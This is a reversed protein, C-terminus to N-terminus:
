SYLGEFVEWFTPFSKAVCIEDLIVVGPAALGAVAFSMAIRHDDYTEIRAGHPRGGQIILSDAGARAEIGMRTLGDAMAALRDSEKARLHAVNSIVTTGEAFAATVALTPVMDPIDGMDARIASLRDPGTVRIGTREREVRCGMDALLDVIKLDGQRSDPGLGAVTVTGGTVAASAWFYSANSADPEVHYDGPRYTRGGSVSFRTYGNRVISVGLRDMVEVTLDIYPRSVPGRTVEIEVGDATYPAILLLASLFQSSVGCDLAVRGGKPGAVPPTVAVPPCGDGNVSRASVGIQSLGDLLDGVPRRRMRDTGTLVTEGPMLAAVATLLRMSTGSNGLHIPRDPAVGQFPPGGIGSIALGRGDRSEEIRVGMRSLANRTLRTDESDLGNTLTSRGDALAAAILLRHTYSKSGPIRVTCPGPRHPRIEIM